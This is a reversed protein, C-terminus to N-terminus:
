KVPELACFTSPHGNACTTTTTASKAGCVACRWFAASIAAYQPVAIVRTPRDGSPPRGLRLVIGVNRLAASVFRDRVHLEAATAMVSGLRSYAERCAAQLLTRRRQMAVAWAERSHLPRIGQAALAECIRRPHCRYRRSLRSIAPTEAYDRAIAAADLLAAKM